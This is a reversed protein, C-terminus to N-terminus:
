RCATLLGTMKADEWVKWIGIPPARPLSMRKMKKLTWKWGTMSSTEEEGKGAVEQQRCNFELVMMNFLASCMHKLVKSPPVLCKVSSFLNM